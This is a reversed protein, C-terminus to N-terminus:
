YRPRRALEGINVGLGFSVTNLDFPVSRTFGANLSVYRSLSVNSWVAFGNDRGLSSDGVTLHESEFTRRGQPPVFEGGSSGSDPLSTESTVVRSYIKQEGSPVVAYLSSGVSFGPVVRVGLGGQFHSVVGLSTFPRTFFNSDSISNALGAQFFPTLNGFSRNVQSTWDVTARGTSFGKSSDGTPATGTVASYFNLVPNEASFRLRLYLNGLGAGSMSSGDTTQSGHVFYLPLGTEVGVYRNFRYGVSPDLVMVQGLSNSSGQFQAYSTFGRDQAAASAVALGVFLALSGITRM